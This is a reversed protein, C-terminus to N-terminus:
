GVEVSVAPRISRHYERFFLMARDVIQALVGRMEGMQFPPRISICIVTDAPRQIEKKQASHPV